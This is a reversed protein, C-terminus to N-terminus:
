VSKNDYFRIDPVFLLINDKKSTRFQTKKPITKHMEATGHELWDSIRSAAM